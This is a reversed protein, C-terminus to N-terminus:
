ADCMEFLDKAGKRAEGKKRGRGAEATNFKWFGGTKYMADKDDVNPGSRAASRSRDNSGSGSRSGASSSGKVIDSDQWWKIDNHDTDNKVQKIFSMAKMNGHQVDRTKHSPNFEALFIGVQEVSLRCIAMLARHDFKWQARMNKLDEM